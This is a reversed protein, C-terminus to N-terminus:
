CVTPFHPWVIFLLRSVRACILAFYNQLYYYYYDPRVTLKRTNWGLMIQCFGVFYQIIKFRMNHGVCFLSCLDRLMQSPASLWSSVMIESYLTAISQQRVEVSYRVKWCHMFLTGVTKSRSFTIVECAHAHEVSIVAEARDLYTDVLM